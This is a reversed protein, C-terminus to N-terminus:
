SSFDPNSVSQVVMKVASLSIASQSTNKFYIKFGTTSLEDNVGNTYLFSTTANCKVNNDLNYSPNTQLVTTGDASRIQVCFDHPGTGEYTGTVVTTVMLGRTFPSAPIAVLSQTHITTSGTAIDTSIGNLALLNVENSAAVRQGGTWTYQDLGHPMMNRMAEGKTLPDSEHFARDFLGDVRIIGRRGNTSTATNFEVTTFQNHLGSVKRGGIATLMSAVTVSDEAVTPNTTTYVKFLKAKTHGSPLTIMGSVLGGFEDVYDLSSNERHRVNWLNVQELAM